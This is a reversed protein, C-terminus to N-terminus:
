LVRLLYYLLIKKEKIEKMKKTETLIEKHVEIENTKNREIRENTENIQGYMEEYSIKKSNDYFIGMEGGKEINNCNKSFFLSKDSNLTKRRAIDDDSESFFLSKDSNLVKRRAIDDDSESFFMSKDDNEAKRRAIDDENEGFFMGM